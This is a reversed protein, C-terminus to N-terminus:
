NTGKERKKRDTKNGLPPPNNGNSLLETIDPVRAGMCGLCASVRVRDCVVDAAESSSPPM